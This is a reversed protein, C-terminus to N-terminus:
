VFRQFPVSRTDCIYYKSVNGSGIEKVQFLKAATRNRCNPQKANQYGDIAATKKIIGKGTTKRTRMIGSTMMTITTSTMRTPM